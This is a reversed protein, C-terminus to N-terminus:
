VRAPKAPWLLNITQRIMGILGMSKIRSLVVTKYFNPNLYYMKGFKRRFFNFAFLHNIHYYAKKLTEADMTDTRSVPHWNKINNASGVWDDWNKSLIWGNSECIRYNESGPYPIMIPASFLSANIESVFRATKNISEWEEGINGVMCFAYTMLGAEHTLKFAQRVQDLTQRKKMLELVKEDGSEVGYGVSGCGSEKLAQLLKADVTNVRGLISYRIGLPAVRRCFDYVREHKLTFTDDIIGFHRAGYHDILYNIETLVNDLSRERVKRKWINGEDCFTCEFPCGRASLVAYLPVLEDIYHPNQIYPGYKLMMDIAPFSLYSDLQSAEMLERHPPTTIDGSANNVYLGAIPDKIVSGNLSFADLFETFTKEGEGVCLFDIEPIARLTDVPLATPHSGGVIIASKPCIAKITVAATRVKGFQPTMMGIAVLDPQFFRLIEPLNRRRGHLDADFFELQHGLSLAVGMLSCIGLPQGPYNTLTSPHYFLIKMKTKPMINSLLNDNEQESTAEQQM